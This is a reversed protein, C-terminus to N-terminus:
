VKAPIQVHSLAARARLRQARAKTTPHSRLLLKVLWSENQDPVHAELYDALENAKDAPAADDAEYEYLRSQYQQLLIALGVTVPIILCIEGLALMNNKSNKIPLSGLRKLTYSTSLCAILPIVLRSFVAKKITHNGVIHAYEHHIVGDPTRANPSLLIYKKGTFYNKFSAEDGVKGHYKVQVSDSQIVNRVYSTNTKDNPLSDLQKEINEFEKKIVYSTLLLQTIATVSVGFLAINHNPDRSDFIPSLSAGMPETTSGWLILTAISLAFIKSKM